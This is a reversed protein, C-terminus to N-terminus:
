LVVYIHVYMRIDIYKLPRVFITMVIAYKTKNNRYADKIFVTVCCLARYFEGDLM